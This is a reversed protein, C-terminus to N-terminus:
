HRGRKAVGDLLNLGAHVMAVAVVSPVLLIKALDAGYAFVAKAEDGDILVITVVLVREERDRRRSDSHVLERAGVAAPHRRGLRSCGRGGLEHAEDPPAMEVARQGVAPLGIRRDFLHPLALEVSLRCGKLAPESRCVGSGSGGRRPRATGVTVDFANAGALVAFTQVVVGGGVALRHRARSALLQGGGVRRVAILKARAEHVAAVEVLDVVAPTLMRLSALHQATWGNRSRKAGTLAHRLHDRHSPM